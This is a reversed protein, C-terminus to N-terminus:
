RAREAARERKRSTGSVRAPTSDKAIDVGPMENLRDCGSEVAQLLAEALDQYQLDTM